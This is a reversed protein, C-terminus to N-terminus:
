SSAIAAFRRTEVQHNRRRRQADPVDGISSAFVQDWRGAGVSSVTVLRWYGTGNPAGISVERTGQVDNLWDTVGSGLTDIAGASYRGNDGMTTTSMPPLYFRGRRRKSDPVFSGPDYGYLTVACSVEYPLSKVGSTGNNATLPATAVDLAHGNEDLHTTKVYSPSVEAHFLGRVDEWFTTFKQSMLNALTPTADAWVIGPPGTVDDEYRLYFGMQAIEQPPTSGLDFGFVVHVLDTPLSM